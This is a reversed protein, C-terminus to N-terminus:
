LLDRFREPIVIVDNHTLKGPKNWAYPPRFLSMRRAADAFIQDGDIANTEDVKVYLAERKLLHKNWGLKQRDTDNRRALTFSRDANGLHFLKLNPDIHFNRGKIRHQGSGWTLKQLAVSPKTYRHSIIGYHRQALFARSPDLPQEVASKEVVDIGIPSLSRRGGVQSLYQALTMGVRPDLVIFEDIDVAIVIDYNTWLSHALHSARAARAKDGEVIQMPKFPVRITNIGLEPAPIKQDFGDIIMYISSAGFQGAYYEVFKETFMEDNRVSTIVAIKKIAKLTM